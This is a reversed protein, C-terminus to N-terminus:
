IKIIKNLINQEQHYIILIIKLQYLQCVKYKDKKM